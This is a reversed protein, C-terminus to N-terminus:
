VIDRLLSFNHKTPLANFSKFFSVFNRLWNDKGFTLTKHSQYRDELLTSPHTIAVLFSNKTLFLPKPSSFEEFSSFSFDLYRFYKPKTTSELTTMPIQTLHNENKPVSTASRDYNWNRHLGNKIPRWDSANEFNGLKRGPIASSDLGISNQNLLKVTIQNYAHGGVRTIRATEGLDSLKLFDNKLLISLKKYNSDEISLLPNDIHPHLGLCHGDNLLGQWLESFQEWPESVIEGDQNTSINRIFFTAKIEEGALLSAERLTNMSMPISEQLHDFGDDRYVKLSTDFLIPDCDFTLFFHSKQSFIMISAWGMKM